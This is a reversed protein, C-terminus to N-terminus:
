IGKRRPNYPWLNPDEGYREIIHKRAMIKDVAAFEVTYMDGTKIIKANIGVSVVKHKHLWM